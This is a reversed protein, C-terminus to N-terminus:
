YGVKSLLSAVAVAWAAGLLAALLVPGLAGRRAPAARPGPDARAVDAGSSM